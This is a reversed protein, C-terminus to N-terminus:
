RALIPGLPRGGFIHVHLHPIEQGGEQGVNVLSLYLLWLLALMPGPLVDVIVLLAAAIGAGCFHRLAVDTSSLWALTPLLWGREIGTYARIEALFSAAPLIGRSGVLGEIQTWLSVFAFLYVLGLLRLFLWGTLVYLGEDAAWANLGGRIRQLRIAFRRGRDSWSM